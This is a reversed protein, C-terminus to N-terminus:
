IIQRVSCGGQADHGSGGPQGRWSPIACALRIAVALCGAVTGNVMPDTSGVNPLWTQSLRAAQVALFLGAGLGCFAPLCERGVVGLLIARRGAGLAMRVGIDHRRTAVVRSTVSYVGGMALLIAM